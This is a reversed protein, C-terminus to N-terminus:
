HNLSTSGAPSQSCPESSIQFSICDDPLFQLSESPLMRTMCILPQTNPLQDLSLSMLPSLSPPLPLSPPGELPNDGPHGWWVVGSWSFFGASTSGPTETGIGPTSLLWFFHSERLYEQNGASSLFGLHGYASAVGQLAHAPRWGVSSARNGVSSEWFVTLHLLIWMVM